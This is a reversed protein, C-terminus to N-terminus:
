MMDRLTLLYKFFKLPNSCSLNLNYHMKKHSVTVTRSIETQYSCSKARMMLPNFPQVFSLFTFIYHWISRKGQVLRYHGSPLSSRASSNIPFYILSAVGMLVERLKFLGSIVESVGVCYGNFTEHSRYFTVANIEGNKLYHKVLPKPLFLSYNCSICSLNHM